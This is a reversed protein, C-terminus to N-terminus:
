RSLPTAKQRRKKESQIVEAVAVDAQNLIEEFEEDVEANDRSLYKEEPAPDKVQGPQEGEKEMTNLFM